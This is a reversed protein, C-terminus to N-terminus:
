AEFLKQNPIIGCWAAAFIGYHLLLPLTVASVSQLTRSWRITWIIHRIEKRGAAQPKKNVHCPHQKGSGDMQTVTVMVWTENQTVIRGGEVGEEENSEGEGERRVWDGHRVFVNNAPVISCTNVRGKNKMTHRQYPRILFSSSVVTFKLFFLHM